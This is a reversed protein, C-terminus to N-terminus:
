IMEAPEYQSAYQEKWDIAEMIKSLPSGEADDLLSSIECVHNGGQYVDVTEIEVEETFPDYNVTVVMEQNVCVSGRRESINHSFKVQPM